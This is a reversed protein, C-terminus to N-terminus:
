EFVWQFWPGNVFFLDKQHWLSESLHSLELNPFIAKTEREPVWVFVRLVCACMYVCLCANVCARVCARVCGCVWGCGGVCVCVRVCVCVGRCPNFLMQLCQRHQEYKFENSQPMKYHLVSLELSLYKKPM